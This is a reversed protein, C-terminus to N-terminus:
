IRETSVATWWANCSTRVSSGRVEREPYFTDDWLFTEFGNSYLHHSAPRADSWVTPTCRPRTSARVRKSWRRKPKWLPLLKGDRGWLVYDVYGTGSPNTSM